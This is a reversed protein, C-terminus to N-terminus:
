RRRALGRRKGAPHGAAPEPRLARQQSRHRASVGSRRPPTSRRAPVPQHGDAGGLAPLVGGGMKPGCAGGDHAVRAACTSDERGLHGGPSHVAQRPVCACRPEGAPRLAARRSPPRQQRARPFYPVRNASADRTVVDAMAAEAPDFQSRLGRGPAPHVARLTAMRGPTMADSLTLGARLFDTWPFGHFEKQYLLPLEESLCDSLRRKAEPTTPSLRGKAHLDTLLQFTSLAAHLRTVNLRLRRLADREGGGAGGEFFWVARTKGKLQRRGIFVRIGDFLDGSLAVPQVNGPVADVEGPGSYEVIVQPPGAQVWWAHDASVPLGDKGTSARLYARAIAPGAEALTTTSFSAAGVGARAMDAVPIRVEQTLVADVLRGFDAALLASSGAPRKLGFGIEIRGVVAGNQQFRGDWYLRRFACYVKSEDSLGLLFRRVSRVLRLAHAGDCYADEAPWEDLGGKLRRRARGFARVFPVRDPEDDPVTLIPWVKAAIQGSPTDLFARVDTLPLQVVTLM